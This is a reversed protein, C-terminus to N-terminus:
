VEEIHLSSRKRFGILAATAGAFFGLVPLDLVVLLLFLLGAIVIAPIIAAGVARGLSGVRLGRNVPWVQGHVGGEGQGQGLLLAELYRAFHQIPGRAIQLPDLVEAGTLFHDM